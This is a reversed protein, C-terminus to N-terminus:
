RADSDRGGGTEREERGEREGEYRALLSFIYASSSGDVFHACAV